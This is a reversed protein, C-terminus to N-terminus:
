EAPLLKRSIRYVAVSAQYNSTPLYGKLWRDRDIEFARLMDLELLPSTTLGMIQAFDFWGDDAAGARGPFVVCTVGYQILFEDVAGKEFWEKASPELLAGLDLIPRRSHYRLAGIDSAACPEEPDIAERLFRAAAIRVNVMHDLNADYVGNWYITNALGLVALGAGLGIMVRPHRRFSYIGAALAVWLVIHNLAGYRSATGPVPLFVIYALNHLIAWTVLVLLPRRMRDPLWHRWARPPGMERLAGLLLVLVLGWGPVAWISFSYDAGGPLSAIPLHPPPLAMGGLTFELLWVIWSGVYILAPFRGLWALDGSRQLVFHVGIAATLQKGIGSTPLLYGTRILLYGFWPGAILLCIWGSTLLGRRTNGNRVLGVMLTAAVLALGEPRTLALLGLAAGLWPWKEERYLLLALIGLALFLMTEMGSLAFWLMNGSLSVLLAAALALRPPWIPRLLLYLGIGVAALSGVGLLKVLLHVSLGGKHGAALLLVWLLSTTGVGKESASNFVLQGHDALNQAYVMHIYSDDMPFELYSPWLYVLSLLVTGVILIAVSLSMWLSGPPKALPPRVDM